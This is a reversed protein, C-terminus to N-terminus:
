FVCYWLEWFIACFCQFMYSRRYYLKINYYIYIHIQQYLYIIFM